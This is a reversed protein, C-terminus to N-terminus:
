IAILNNLKVNIKDKGALEALNNKEDIKAIKGQKGIHKGALIYVEAGAQMHLVKEINKGKLNVVLSDGTNFEDNTIINRGDNLNIQVKGKKLIKKGIIKVTKTELSKVKKAEFKKNENIIIQYIENGIELKDFLVLPFKEDKVIKDNVKIKKQNLIQKAEKKNRVIKLIDRMMIILPIGHKKAHSPSALYKTGKRAIPWSKPASTRKLHM